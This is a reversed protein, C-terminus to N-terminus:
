VFLIEPLCDEGARIFFVECCFFTFDSRTPNKTRPSAKKKKKNNSRAAKKSRAAKNKTQKKSNNL